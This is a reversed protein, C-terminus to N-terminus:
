KNRYKDEHVGNFPECVASGTPYEFVMKKPKVDPPARFIKTFSITRHTSVFFDM